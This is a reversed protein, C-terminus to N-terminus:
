ILFLFYMQLIQLCILEFDCWLCCLYLWGVFLCLAGHFGTSHLRNGRCSHKCGCSVMTVLVAGVSGRLGVIPALRLDYSGWIGFPFKEDGWEWMWLSEGPSRAHHEWYAFLFALWIRAWLSNFQHVHKDPLTLINIINLINPTDHIWLDGWRYKM